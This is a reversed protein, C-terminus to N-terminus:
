LKDVLIYKLGYFMFQHETKKGFFPLIERDGNAIWGCSTPVFDLYANGGKSQATMTGCYGSPSSILLKICKDKCCFHSLRGKAECARGNPHALVERQKACLRICAASGCLSRRRLTAVHAFPAPPQNRRSVKSLRASAM